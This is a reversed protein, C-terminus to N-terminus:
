GPWGPYSLLFGAYDSFAYSDSQRLRNWRLVAEAIPDTAPMSGSAIAGSVGMRSRYWDRQENSLTAAAAAVSLAVLGVGAFRRVTSSM